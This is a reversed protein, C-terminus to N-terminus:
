DIISSIVYLFEEETGGNLRGNRLAIFVSTPMAYEHHCADIRLVIFVKSITVLYLLAM